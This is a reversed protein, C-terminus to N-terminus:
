WNIAWGANWEIYDAVGFNHARINIGLFLDKWFIYKVGARQYFAPIQGEIEERLFTYGPQVVLSLRGAVLEFSGFVGLSIKDGFPVDALALKGDQSIDVQANISGILWTFAPVLNLWFPFKVILPPCLVVYEM